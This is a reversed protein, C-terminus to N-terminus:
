DLFGALILLATFFALSLLLVIGMLLQKNETKSRTRRQQFHHISYQNRSSLSYAKADGKVAFYIWGNEPILYYHQRLIIFARM